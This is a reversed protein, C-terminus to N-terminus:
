ALEGVPPRSPTGDEVQYFVGWAGIGTHTGLVGTALTVFCDRPHYAAVLASRLREAVEPADVHAIGFRVVEPKRALARDVWQLVRAVVPERGRVRDAPVVQGAQDLTFIPKVDLMSALWAKGRSVRGSRQLNDLQDVTVFM